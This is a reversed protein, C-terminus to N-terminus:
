RDGSRNTTGYCDITNLVTALSEIGIRAGEVLVGALTEAQTNLTTDLHRYASAIGAPRAPGAPALAYRVCRGAGADLLIWPQDPKIGLHAQTARQAREARSRAGLGQWYAVLGREATQAARRARQYRRWGFPGCAPCSLAHSM